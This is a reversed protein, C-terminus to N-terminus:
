MDWSLVSYCCRLVYELIKLALHFGFHFQSPFVTLITMFWLWFRRYNLHKHTIINFNHTQKITMKVIAMKAAVGKTMKVIKGGLAVGMPSVQSVTDVRCM